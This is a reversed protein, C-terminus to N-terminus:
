NNKPEPANKIAFTKEETPHVGDASIIYGIFEVREVAIVCKNANVTLGNDNLRRLVQELRGFHETENGGSILIDDQFVIVGDINNLLTEMIRQCIGSASNIGFALRKVNFLGKHTTITLIEASEDDVVLQQYGQKLDLKSFLKAGSICSRVENFTPM